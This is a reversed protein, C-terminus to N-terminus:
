YGLYAIGLTLRFFLGQPNANVLDPDNFEKIIWSDNSLGLQYGAKFGFEVAAKDDPMPSFFAINAALNAVAGSARYKEVVFDDAPDIHLFGGGYSAGVSPYILTNKENQYVVYGLQLDGMLYQLATYQGRDLNSLKTPLGYVAGGFVMGKFYRTFGVGVALSGNPVTIEEQEELATNVADHNMFNGGAAFYGSNAIFSRANQAQSLQFILLLPLLFICRYM